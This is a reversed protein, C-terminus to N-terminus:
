SKNSFNIILALLYNIRNHYRKGTKIEFLVVSFLFAIWFVITLGVM